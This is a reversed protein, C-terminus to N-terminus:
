SKGGGLTPRIWDKVVTGSLPQGASLNLVLRIGDPLPALTGPSAPAPGGSAATPNGTAAANSATSLSNSWANNRYYFVQWEDLGAIAVERLKEATGPNQGWLQVQAWAQQLDTHTYLPLSQWRAWNGAAGAPGNIMRRTWGVVRLPSGDIGADRRTLRVVRGDFDIGNVQGTEIIADLDASWQSLGIQLSVVGDMRGRVSAQARAMGDLGRWSLLALLAMVSLAVLLEILTFGRQGRVPIAM